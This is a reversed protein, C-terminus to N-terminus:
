MLCAVEHLLDLLVKPMADAFKYREMMSLTMEVLAERTENRALKKTLSQSASSISVVAAAKALVESPKLVGVKGAAGPVDGSFDDVVNFGPGTGMALNLSENKLYHYGKYTVFMCQVQPLRRFTKLADWDLEQKQAQLVREVTGACELSADEYIERLCTLSRAVADGWLLQLKASFEAKLAGDGMIDVCKQMLIAFDEELKPTLIGLESHTEQEENGPEVEAVGHEWLGRSLEAVAASAKDFLQGAHAVSGGFSKVHNNEEDQEAFNDLSAELFNNIEVCEQLVAGLQVLLPMYKLPLSTTNDVTLMNMKEPHICALRHYEDVFSKASAVDHARLANCSGIESIAKAL